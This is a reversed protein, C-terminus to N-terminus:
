QIDGDGFGDVCAIWRGDDLRHPDVTHMGSKNWGRGSAQIVPTPYKEETYTRSTLETVKFAWVKNGYAPYCDQTFRVPHHGVMTVRGGPRAISLNKKIIPSRPHEKWGRALEPSGYLRLTTNGSDTFLWWRDHYRFISADAFRRGKLLTEQLRWRVPFEEARYLQVRRLARTEPIMYYNDQWKFVYPYSLHCPAELVIKEYTWSFGDTSSALGIKGINGASLITDVEFFMYWTSGSRIMFPDAVFNAKVDTVDAASLVPNGLAPDATLETPTPGTLIGISWKGRIEQEPEDKPQLFLSKIRHMLSPM